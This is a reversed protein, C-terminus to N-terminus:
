KLVTDTQRDFPKRGFSSAGQLVNNAFSIIIEVPTTEQCLLSSDKANRPYPRPM